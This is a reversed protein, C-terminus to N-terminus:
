CPSGTLVESWVRVCRLKGYRSLVRRRVLVLVTVFSTHSVVQRVINDEELHFIGRVFVVLKFCPLVSYILFALVLM